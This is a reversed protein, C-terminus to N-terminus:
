STGHKGSWFAGGGCRSVALYYTRARRNRLWRLPAFSTNVEIIRRMNTWFTMDALDKDYETTGTAYMYDHIDCAAGIDLGWM